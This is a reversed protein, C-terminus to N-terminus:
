ISWLITIHDCYQIKIFNMGQLKYVINNSPMTEHSAPLVWVLIVQPVGKQLPSVIMSYQLRIIEHMAVVVTSLM